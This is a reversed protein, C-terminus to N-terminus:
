VPLWIAFSWCAEYDWSGRRGGEGGEGEREEMEEEEKKKERERDRMM